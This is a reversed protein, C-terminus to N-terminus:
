MDLTILSDAGSAASFNIQGRRVLANSPGKMGIRDTTYSLLRAELLLRITPAYSM